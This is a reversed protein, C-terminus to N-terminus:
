IDNIELNPVAENIMEDNLLSEAKLQTAYKQTLDVETDEYRFVKAETSYSYRQRQNSNCEHGFVPQCDSCKLAKNIDFCTLRKRKSHRMFRIARTIILRLRFTVDESITSSVEPTPENLGATRAMMYISDTTFFSCKTGGIDRNIDVNM